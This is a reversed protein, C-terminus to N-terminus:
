ALDVTSRGLDRLDVGASRWREHLADAGRVRCFALEASTAPIFRLLTVEGAPTPVRGLGPPEIAAIVGGTCVSSPDLPRGLDISMGPRYVVEEVVPAAALVALRRWLEGGNRPRDHLTVVLEARVGVEPMARRSMGLTVLALGDSMPFRLVEIPEVGVFSVSARAPPAGFYGRVEREVAVLVEDNPDTPVSGVSSV